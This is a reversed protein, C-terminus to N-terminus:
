PKTRGAIDEQCGPEKLAARSAKLGAIIEKRENALAKPQVMALRGFRYAVYNGLYRSIRESLEAEGMTTTAEHPVKMPEPPPAQTNNEAAPNNVLLLAQLRAALETATEAQAKPLKLKELEALFHEYEGIIEQRTSSQYHLAAEAAQSPLRRQFSMFGLRYRSRHRCLYVILLALLLLACVTFMINFGAIALVYKKFATIAPSTWLRSLNQSLADFLYNLVAARDQGDSGPALGNPTPDFTLWGLSPIYIEAWAHADSMHVTWLGTFPNYEGPIFGTVLRAPINQTRCMMVFATAFQECYGRRTKLLFHAISDEAPEPTPAELDYTCNQRLYQQIQNAKSFWNKGTCISDALDKIQAPMSRPLQLYRGFRRRFRPAEEFRTTDVNSMEASSALPQHSIVTYVMDKEVGVPSRISGYEDVQLKMAPFYIQQPVSAALVLNPAESEIYFIQVLPEASLPGTREFSPLPALRIGEGTTAIRDKVSKPRSMTWRQGDFTDFAMGRWLQGKRCSVHMVVENTLQGRFNLDLEESFGYYAKPPRTISGDPSLIKDKLAANMFNMHLFPFNFKAAVRINRVMALDPKPMIFFLALSLTMGTLILQWSRDIKLRSTIKPATGPLAPEPITIKRIIGHAEQQGRENNRSECDLKLMYFALALFSFLYVGFFMDRSLTAASAILTLGVLGSVSLDRRRPLDFCHLGQLAILMNTLPLRADAISSAIRILLENFFVAAIFLIGFSLFIKTIRNNQCRVRYSFISGAITGFVSALFLWPPTDAEQSAAIIGILAMTSSVVRYRVSDEIFHKKRKAPLPTTSSM